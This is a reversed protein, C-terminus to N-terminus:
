SYNNLGNILKQIKDLSVEKPSWGEKIAKDSSILKRPTGDPKTRDWM